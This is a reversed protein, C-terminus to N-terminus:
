DFLILRGTRVMLDAQLRKKLNRDASAAEMLQHELRKVDRQLKDVAAADMSYPVDGAGSWVSLAGTVDTAWCIMWQPERTWAPTLHITAAESFSPHNHQVPRVLRQTIDALDDYNAGGFTAMLCITTYNSMPNGRLIFCPRYKNTKTISLTSGARATTRSKRASDMKDLCELLPDYVSANIGCVTGEM